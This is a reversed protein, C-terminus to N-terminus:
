YTRRRYDPTSRKLVQFVWPSCLATTVLPWFLFAEMFVHPFGMGESSQYRVTLLEAFNLVYFIVFSLGAKTFLSDPFVKKSISGSFYGAAALATMWFGMRGTGFLDLLFGAWLGIFAGLAAGESLSYFLVVILILFPAKSYFLYNLSNQILFFVFVWFFASPRFSNM